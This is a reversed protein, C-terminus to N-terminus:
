TTVSGDDHRECGEMDGIRTVPQMVTEALKAVEPLIAELVDPSADAFGPLNSYRGYGLVDNLLYLTDQVPAHYIPMRHKGGARTGGANSRTLDRLTRCHTGRDFISTQTFTLIESAAFKPEGDLDSSRGLCDSAFNSGTCVQWFAA